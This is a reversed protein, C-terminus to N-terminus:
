PVTLLFPLMDHQWTKFVIYYIPNRYSLLQIIKGNSFFPVSEAVTSMYSAYV